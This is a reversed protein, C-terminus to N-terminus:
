SSALFEVKGFFFACHGLIVPLTARKETAGRLIFEGIVSWKVQENAKLGGFKEDGEKWRTQQMTKTADGM